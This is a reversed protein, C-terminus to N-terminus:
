HNYLFENSNLQVWVIDAVLGDMPLQNKAMYETYTKIEQPTPYRSLTLLTLEQCIQSIDNQQAIKKLRHSKRIHTELESSNMLYLLQRETLTNKRLSELSNDRSSKGFLELTSSSVTGDGLQVARTAKPYITFPEPVRSKYTDFWGTVDALADIIVEAPLRAPQYSGQPYLKNQFHNSEVILKVLAKMDYQKEIFYETLYALLKPNSARNDPRWDDSEQVIGKGTMWYWTRNAMVAAFQKNSVLWNVYPIRWDSDQELSIPTGDSLKITSTLPNKHIDLYIIEEKWEKTSKYALQEFCRFGEDQYTRQGLFLLQINAYINEPTKNVFARYFNVQPKKFNSGVSLLLDSIMQDYPTNQLLQHYLWNNYAQVGNPWLNSPFESKIRLIDGWRMQMYEAYNKSQILQNILQKRKNPQQNDIFQKAQVPNPIRVTLTLYLRRVFDADSCISETKSEKSPFFRDIENASSPFALLLLFIVLIIHNKM